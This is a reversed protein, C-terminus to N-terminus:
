ESERDGNRERDARRMRGAFLRDKIYAAVGIAFGICSYAYTLTYMLIFPILFLIGKQKIVFRFIKRNLLLYFVFLILVLWRVRNWGAAIGAAAVLPPAFVLLLGSVINSWKLNLDPTFINRSAMLKTWPIARYLLDSKILTWFTYRKGHTVQLKKNLLIKKGAKFLSYGLDIDEVSAAFFNDNFGGVQEFDERRIAGCGCWFTRAKENATQHTFHHVLNKYVTPFNGGHPLPTYEGFCAAIEPNEDLTRVAEELTDPQVTVDADVFFLIQGSSIDVGKNRATAAGYQHIMSLHLGPYQIVIDGSGDVSRDNITVVEYNPYTSQAISELTQAITGAANFYPIIISVLPMSEQM